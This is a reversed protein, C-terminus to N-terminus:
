YYMNYPSKAKCSEILSGFCKGIVSQFIQAEIQMHGFKVICMNIYRIENM